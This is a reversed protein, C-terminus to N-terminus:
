RRLSSARACSIRSHMWVPLVMDAIGVAHAQVVRIEVEFRAVLHHLEEALEFIREVAGPVDGLAAVDLELLDLLRKRFEVDRGLVGGIGIELVDRALSEFLAARTQFGQARLAAQLVIEGFVDLAQIALDPHDLLHLEGAVEEDDPVEDAEGFRM